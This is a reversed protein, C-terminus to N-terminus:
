CNFQVSVQATAVGNVYRTFEVNCSNPQISVRVAEPLVIYGRSLDEATIIVEGTREVRKDNDLNSVVSDLQMGFVKYSVKDNEKMGRTTIRFETILFEGGGVKWDTRGWLQNENELNANDAGFSRYGNNVWLNFTDEVYSLKEIETEEANIELPESENGDKDAIKATIPHPDITALDNSDNDTWTGDAGKTFTATKETSDPDTYTVTITDGNKNDSPPSVTVSGDDNATATPASPASTAIPTDSNSTTSETNGTGNNGNDERRDDTSNDERRNDDGGTCITDASAYEVVYKAGTQPTVTVTGNHKETRYLMFDDGDNKGYTVASGDNVVVDAKGKRMTVVLDNANTFTKTETLEELHTKAKCKLKKVADLIDALVQSNDIPTPLNDVTVTLKDNTVNVNLDATQGAITVNLNDLASAIKEALADLDTPNAVTVTWEGTQTATVEIGDDITAVVEQIKDTVATQM